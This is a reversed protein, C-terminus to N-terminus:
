TAETVARHPLLRAQLETLSLRHSCKLWFSPLAVEDVLGDECGGWEFDGPVDIYAQHTVRPHGAPGLQGPRQRPPTIIPPKFLVFLSLPSAWGGKGPGRRFVEMFM